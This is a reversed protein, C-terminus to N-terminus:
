VESPHAPQPADSACTSTSVQLHLEVHDVLEVRELSDEKLSKM